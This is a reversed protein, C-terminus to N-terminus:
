VSIVSDEGGFGNPVYADAQWDNEWTDGDILFKYRYSRESRLSLSVSFRGDKRRVLPTAQKSWDNFDGSLHVAAAGIEAPLEFTVRCTKGGKSYTKRAM